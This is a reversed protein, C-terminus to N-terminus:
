YSWGSELHNRRRAAEQARAVKGDGHARALRRQLAPDVVAGDGGAPGCPTMAPDQPRVRDAEDALRPELDHARVEQPQVDGRDARDSTLVRVGVVQDLRHAGAVSAGHDAEDDRREDRSRADGLDAIARDAASEGGDALEPTVPRVADRDLVLRDFCAGLGQPHDALHKGLGSGFGRSRDTARHGSIGVEQRRQDRRHHKALTAVARDVETGVERAGGKQAPDFAM